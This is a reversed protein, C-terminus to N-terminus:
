TFREEGKAKLDRLLREFAKQYEDHNKWQRFDGIHRSRKIHAPWGTKIDMVADDVRIPFLVTNNQEREKELAAEVEHEVWDSTVSHESLILLLKDHMRISEDIGARFREGIKLDEPAFWNRVGNDQLDAHLSRAFDDDRSSYSIFVSFYDIALGVLSRAYEIFIDPVGAGRLFSEPINGGSRYITDIGISSPGRHNVEELGKVTSLDVNSFVTAWTTAKSFNTEHLIARRFITSFLDTRGLDAGSLDVEELDAGSLAARSLNTNSLDAVNLMATNLKARSLNAKSLEAGILDAGRLDVGVLEAEILDVEPEDADFKMRRWQNWIEVGQRLIILHEENAM